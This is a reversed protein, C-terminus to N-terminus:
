PATASLVSEASAPSTNLAEAAQTLGAGHLLAYHRLREFAEDMSLSGQEALIGKAREIQSRELLANRVQVPVSEPPAGAHSHQVIGLMALDALAQVARLAASEAVGPRPHFLNLAGVTRGRLRLPVANASHIGLGSAAAAFRPWREALSAIDPEQVAQGSRYCLVCPGEGTDLQIRELRRIGESSYVIDRLRGTQDAVVIGAGAAGCVRMSADALRHLLDALDFDSVLVEALDAFAENWKAEGSM